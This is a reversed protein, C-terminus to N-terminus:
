FRAEWNRADDYMKQEEDTLMEGHAVITFYKSSAAIYDGRQYAEQAEERLRTMWEQRTENPREPPRISKGKEIFAEVDPWQAFDGELIPKCYKILLRLQRDIEGEIKEPGEMWIMQFETEPALAKLVGILEVEKYDVGIDNSLPKVMVVITVWELIITLRCFQSEAIFIRSNDKRLAFGCISLNRAVLLPVAKGFEIEADPMKM